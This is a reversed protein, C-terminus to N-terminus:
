QREAPGRLTSKRQIGHPRSLNYFPEWKSLKAGLDTDDTYTLLQYFEQEDTRQSRGVKGNLQPSAPKIYAHRIGQDEVHWHFKARFEHGYCRRFSHASAGGLCRHACSESCARVPRPPWPWDLKELIRINLGNRLPRGHGSWIRCGGICHQYSDVYGFTRLSTRISAGPWLRRRREKTRLVRASCSWDSRLAAPTHGVRSRRRRPSPSSDGASRRADPQLPNPPEAPTTAPAPGFANCLLQSLFSRVIWLIGLLDQVHEPDLRRLEVM